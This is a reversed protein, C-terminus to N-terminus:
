REAGWRGRQRGEGRQVEEGERDVRQRGEGERGAREREVELKGIHGEGGRERQRMATLRLQSLGLNYGQYIM